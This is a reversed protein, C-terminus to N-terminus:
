ETTAMKKLVGNVFKGSQDEGYKKAVEVAENIAVKEPVERRLYTMEYVAIRLVTREVSAIRALSWKELHKSITQDIEEKHEMVGNVLRNLFDMEEPKGQLVYDIAEEPTIDNIDIQFLAQFAKERAERRKM